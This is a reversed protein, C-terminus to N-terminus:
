EKWILGVRGIPAVTNTGDMWTRVNYTEAATTPFVEPWPYESFNSLLKGYQPHWSLEPIVAATPKIFPTIQTSLGSGQVPLPLQQDVWGLAKSSVKAYGSVTQAATPMAILSGWLGLVGNTKGAITNITYNAASQANATTNSTIVGTKDAHLQYPVDKSSLLVYGQFTHVGTTADDFAAAMRLTDNKTLKSFAPVTINLPGIHTAIAGTLAVAEPLPWNLPDITNQDNYLRFYGCLQEAPTNAATTVALATIHLHAAVLSKAWEPVRVNGVQVETTDNSNTGAADADPLRIWQQM